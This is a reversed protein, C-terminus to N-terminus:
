HRSIISDNLRAAEDETRAWLVVELGRAALMVALTTGWATTGIVAIKKM